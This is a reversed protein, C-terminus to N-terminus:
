CDSVRTARVMLFTQPRGCTLRVRWSARPSGAQDSSSFTERLYRSVSVLEVTWMMITM